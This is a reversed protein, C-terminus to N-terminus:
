VTKKSSWNLSLPLLLFVECGLHAHPACNQFLHIVVDFNPLFTQSAVFTPDHAIRRLLVPSLTSDSVEGSKQQHQINHKLVHLSLPLSPCLLRFHLSTM